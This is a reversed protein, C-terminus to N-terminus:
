SFNTRSFFVPLPCGKKGIEVSYKKQYQYIGSVAQPNEVGLRTVSLKDVFNSVIYFVYLCRHNM